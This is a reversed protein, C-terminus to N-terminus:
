FMAAKSRDNICASLAPIPLDLRIEVWFAGLYQKLNYILNM